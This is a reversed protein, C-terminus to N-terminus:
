LSVFLAMRDDLKRWFIVAGVAFSVVTFLGGLVVLSGAFFATSLGMAALERVHAPGLAAPSCRPDACVQQLQAFMLPLSAVFYVVTLLAIAVWVVRVATLPRGHLRRAQDDAPRPTIASAVQVHMPLDGEDLPM